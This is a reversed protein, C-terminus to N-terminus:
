KGQSAQGDEAAPREGTPPAPKPTPPPPKPVSSSLNPTPSSPKPVPPLAKPTPGPTPDGLTENQSQRTADAVSKESEASELPKAFFADLAGKFRKVREDNDTDLKATLDYDRGYSCVLPSNRAIGAGNHTRVQLFVLASSFGERTDCVFEVNPRARIGSFHNCYYSAGLLCCFLTGPAQAEDFIVGGLGLVGDALVSHGPLKLWQLLNSMSSFKASTAM